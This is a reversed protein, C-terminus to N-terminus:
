KPYAWRPASVQLHLDEVSNLGVEALLIASPNLKLPLFLILPQAAM